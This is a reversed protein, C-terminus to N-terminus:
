KLWFAESKTSWYPRQTTQDGVLVKKWIPARKKVENLVRSVVEQPDKRHAASAAIIVSPSAVGVKGLRHCVYLRKVEPFDKLVQLSIKKMESWTMTEYCEYVLRHILIFHFFYVRKVEKGHIDAM